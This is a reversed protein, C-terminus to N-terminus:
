KLIPRLSPSFKIAQKEKTHQSWTLRKDLIIGLYKICPKLLIEKNNLKLTQYKNHDLTFDVHISNEANM